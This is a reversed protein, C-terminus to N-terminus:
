DHDLEDRVLDWLHDKARQLATLVHQDQAATAGHQHPTVAHENAACKLALRIVEGIQVDPVAAQEDLHARYIIERLVDWAPRPPVTPLDYTPWAPPPMHRVEKTHELLGRADDWRGALAAEHARRVLEAHKADDIPNEHANGICRPVLESMARLVPPDGAALRLIEKLLQRPTRERDGSRIVPEDPWGRSSGQRPM